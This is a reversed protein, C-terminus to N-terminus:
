EIMVDKITKLERQYDRRSIVFKKYEDPNIRLLDNYTCL